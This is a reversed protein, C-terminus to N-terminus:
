AMSVSRSIFEIIGEMFQRATITRNDSSLSIFNKDGRHPVSHMSKRVRMEELWLFVSIPPTELSFSIVLIGLSCKLHSFALGLTKGWAKDDKRAETLWEKFLKPSQELDRDKPALISKSRQPPTSSPSAKTQPSSEPVLFFIQWAQDCIDACGKRKQQPSHAKICVCARISFVAGLWQFCGLKLMFVINQWDHM